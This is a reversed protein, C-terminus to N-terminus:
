YRGRVGLTWVAGGYQVSSFRGPVTDFARIPENLINRGSLTLEYTRGLKYGGSFDLMTRESGWQERLTVGAGSQANLKAATWTTRLQVNFKHNSFRIGGNTSKPVLATTRVDAITRSMSGFLSFGRWFGPLFVLQQSYEFDAGKVKRTGLATTPRFFRYGTYVPDNAYGAEEATIEANALGLNKIQMEYSSISVVGAPEIYYQISAFYKDSTEPNLNPNPLTVTHATDNVTIIGAISDYNPRLISQSASLLLNLRSTIDYKLGGSLFNNSYGGYKNFRQGGRYQYVTYPITGAVLDPRETRMVAPPIIDFVKGVIRIREHRVGFNARLRKWRTTGDVYSADNQEKVGRPSTFRNIFNQTANDLFYAPHALSLDYMKSTDPWPIGLSSFNGGDRIDFRYYKEMIMVTGPDLQNGAPGIYTASQTGIIALDYTTLLTNWGTKFTVPLGVNFVKVLDLKGSFVQSQGAQPSTNVNNALADVRNYSRPDNWPLGSLQTFKWATDRESSREAMWSLRTLRQSVNTYFGSNEYHTRSRSYGGQATVLLDGRKYEIKPTYTATDNLKNRHGITQTINTTANPTANYIMRTPTSSADVNAIATDFTITRTDPEDSLHSAATRLSLVVNESLNYDLNVGVSDRRAIDPGDRLVMQRPLPGRTAAATYDYGMSWIQQQNFITSTGLSLQVGFRGGFSEAYSLNASPFIKHHNGDDPGPTKAFTLAASNASMSLQTIIERGKRTFASKSRMNITGAPSNAAMDASRTKHVEISEISNISAQEFEFQRSTGSFSASAASAMQMGDLSVGVYKPDLGGIRAARADNSVYDMVIGPLYKIFEGVNGGTLDGFNDAAVVNKMNMAARQEMIAKANGDRQSSTVFADLMVVDGQGPKATSRSPRSSVIEFDHKTTEGATLIVTAPEAAYGTYSVLITHTGAPAGAIVYEGGDNTYAVLDTNKLRVEADRVYQRNEPNFIKGAITGTRVASSASDPVSATPDATQASGSLGLTFLSALVSLVTRKKMSSPAAPPSLPSSPPPAPPPATLPPARPPPLATIAIAKAKEDQRAQLPTRDLLAALAALPQFEGRVAPTQVSGVDDPSYLLQEGSQAAFQKLTATASGAPIDFARPTSDAAALAAPILLGLGILTGLSTRASAPFAYHTSRARVSCRPM